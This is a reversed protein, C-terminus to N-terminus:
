NQWKRGEIATKKLFSIKRFRRKVKKAQELKWSVSVGSPEIHGLALYM